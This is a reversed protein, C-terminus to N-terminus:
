LATSLELPKRYFASCKSSGDSTTTTTPTRICKEFFVEDEDSGMEEEWPFHFDNVPQAVYRSDVIDFYNMGM